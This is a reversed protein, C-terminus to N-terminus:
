PPSSEPRPRRPQSATYHQPLIGVNRFLMNGVYEPSLNRCLTNFLCDRVESLAPRWSPSQTPKLSNEGYFDLRVLMNHFARCPRTSLSKKYVRYRVKPYWL